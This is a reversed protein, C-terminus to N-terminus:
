EADTMGWLVPVKDDAYGSYDMFLADGCMEPVFRDSIKNNDKGPLHDV